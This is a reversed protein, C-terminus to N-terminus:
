AARPLPIHQAGGKIIIGFLLGMVMGEATFWFPSQLLGDIGFINQMLALLQDFAFFSMVFNLWAGMVGTTLWVPLKCKLIPHYSIQVCLGIVAGFTIYWLLIGWRFLAGTEPFCYKLMLFGALGAFLGLLKGLAIQQMLLYQTPDRNETAPIEDTM